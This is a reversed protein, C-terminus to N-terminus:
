IYSSYTRGQVCFLSKVFQNWINGTKRVYRLGEVTWSIVLQGMCVLTSTDQGYHLPICIAIPIAISKLNTTSKKRTVCAKPLSLIRQQTFRRLFFFHCPFCYVVDNHKSNEIFHFDAYWKSIFSQQQFQGKARSLGWNQVVRLKPLVPCQNEGHAIDPPIQSM